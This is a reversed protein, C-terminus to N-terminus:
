DNKNITRIFNIIFILLPVPWLVGIWFRELPSFRLEEAKADHESLKSITWDYMFNVILGGILYLFIPTHYEMYFTVISDM